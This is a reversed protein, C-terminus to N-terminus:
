SKYSNNMFPIICKPPNVPTTRALEDISIIRCSVDVQDVFRVCSLLEGRVSCSVNKWSWARSIKFIFLLCGSLVNLSRVCFLFVSDRVKVFIILKPTEQGRSWTNELGSIIIKTASLLVQGLYSAKFPGTAFFFFFACMWTQLDFLNPCMRLYNPFLNEPVILRASLVSLALGKRYYRYSYATVAMGNFISRIFLPGDHAPSRSTGRWSRM